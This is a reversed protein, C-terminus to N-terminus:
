EQRYESSEQHTRWLHGNTIGPISAPGAVQLALVKVETSFRLNSMVRLADTHGLIFLKDEPTQLFM